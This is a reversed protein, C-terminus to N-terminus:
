HIIVTRPVNYRCPPMGAVGGGGGLQCASWGFQGSIDVSSNENITISQGSLQHVMTGHEKNMASHDIGDTAKDSNTFCGGPGWQLGWVGM